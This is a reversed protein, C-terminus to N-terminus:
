GAFATEQGESQKELMAAYERQWLVAERTSVPPHGKVRKYNEVANRQALENWKEDSMMPIDYLPFPEPFGRVQIMEKIRYTEFLDIM